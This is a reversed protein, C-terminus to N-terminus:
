IKPTTAQKQQPPPPEKPVANRLWEALEDENKNPVSIQPATSVFRIHLNLMQSYPLCFLGGPTIVFENSDKLDRNDSEDQRSFLRKTTNGLYIMELDDGKIVFDLLVGSYIVSADKTDVLADVYVLPEQRGLFAYASDYENARFFYWWNNFYCYLDNPKRNRRLRQLAANMRLRRATVVRQLLLGCSGSFLCLYFTYAAFGRFYEAYVPEYRKFDEPKFQGSIFQLLFQYDVQLHFVYITASHLLLSLVASLFLYEALSLKPIGKAHTGKTFFYLFVLPPILLIVLLITGFALNM